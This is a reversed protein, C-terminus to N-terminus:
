DVNRRQWIVDLIQHEENTLTIAIIEQDGKNKVVTIQGIVEERILQALKEVFVEPIRFVDGVEGQMVLAPYLSESSCDKIAQKALEKIQENM